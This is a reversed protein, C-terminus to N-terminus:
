GEVETKLERVLLEAETLRLGPLILGGAVLNRLLEYCKVLTPSTGEKPTIPPLAQATVHSGLNQDGTPDPLRQSPVFSQYPSWATGETAQRVPVVRAQEAAVRGSHEAPIAKRSDMVGTILERQAPSLGEPLVIPGPGPPAPAAETPMGDDGPQPVTMTAKDLNESVFKDFDSKGKDKDKAM